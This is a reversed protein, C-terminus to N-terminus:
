DDESKNSPITIRITSENSVKELKTTMLLRGTSADFIMIYLGLYKGAVRVRGDGDPNCRLDGIEIRVNICPYGRNDLLLIDIPDNNRGRIARYFATTTALITAIAALVIIAEKKTPMDMANEEM